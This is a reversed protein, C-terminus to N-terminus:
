IKDFFRSVDEWDDDGPLYKNPDPDDHEDLMRWEAELRAQELRSPESFKVAKSDELVSYHRNCLYEIGRSTIARYVVAGGCRCKKGAWEKDQMEQILMRIALSVLCTMPLGTEEKLAYLQRIQDSHIRPQYKREDRDRLIRDKM